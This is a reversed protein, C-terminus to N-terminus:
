FPKDIALWAATGVLVAFFVVLWPAFRRLRNALVVSAGVLFWIALKGNLWPPPSKIGLKAALMFGTVIITILGLGCSVYFIRRKPLPAGGAMKLALIGSLGMFTLVIGTIHVIRLTNYDMYGKIVPRMGKGLSNVTAGLCTRKDGTDSGFYMEILRASSEVGVAGGFSSLVPMSSAATKTVNAAAPANQNVYM